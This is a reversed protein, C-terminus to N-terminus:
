FDRMDPDDALMLKVLREGMRPRIKQDIENPPWLGKRELKRREEREIRDNWMTLIIRKEEDNSKENYM